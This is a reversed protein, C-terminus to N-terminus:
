GRSQEEEAEKAEELIDALNEKQNLVFDQGASTARAVQAAIAKRYKYALYGATVGLGFMVLPHTLARGIVSRGAVYGITM